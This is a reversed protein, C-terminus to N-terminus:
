PPPALSRWDRGPSLWNPEAHTSWGPLPCALFRGAAALTYHLVYDISRKEIRFQDWVASDARLTSLRCAWTMTTSSTFKWHSGPTRVVRTEEGGARVIRHLGSVRPDIYKDASDYLTLYDAIELGEWLLPRAGPWHLYDDELFYVVADEGADRQLMLSKAHLFSAHHGLRTQRITGEALCGARSLRRELAEITAPSCQDALVTLEAATPRFVELFNDLCEFINALKGAKNGKDSIRYCVHLTTPVPPARRAEYAAWRAQPAQALQLALALDCFAEDNAPDLARLAAFCRLSPGFRGARQHAAGMGRLAVRHAPDIALARRLAAETGPADGAELRLAGLNALAGAHDPAAGIAHRFATEAAGADGRRQELIGRRYALDAHRPHHGASEHAAALAEESRGLEALADVLALWGAANGPASDVLTRLHTIAEAHRGGAVLLRGLGLRAAPLAPNVALAREFARGAEGPAAKLMIAFNSLQEAHAPRCAIARRLRDVGQEAGGSQADMLGLLHWADATEPDDRLIAACLERTEEWRRAIFLQVAAALRQQTESSM